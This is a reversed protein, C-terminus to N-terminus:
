ALWTTEKGCSSGIIHMLLVEPLLRADLADRRQRARAPHGHRTPPGRTRIRPSARADMARSRAPVPRASRARGVIAVDNARLSNPLGFSTRARWRSTMRTASSTPRAAPRTKTRADRLLRSQMARMVADASVRQGVEFVTRSVRTLTWGHDDFLRDLLDECANADLDGVVFATAGLPAGHGQAYVRRVQMPMATGFVAHLALVDCATRDGRTLAGMTRVRKSLAHAIREHPHSQRHPPLVSPERQPATRAGRDCWTGGSWPLEMVINVRPGVGTDHLSLGVGGARSLIAIRKAGTQLRRDGRAAARAGGHAARGRPRRRLRRSRGTIEAVNSHGFERLIADM